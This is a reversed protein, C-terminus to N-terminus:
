FDDDDDSSVDSTETSGTNGLLEIENCVVVPKWRTDGTTKDPWQDFKLNGAVAVQSGKRLYKGAIDSTKGWAQINFWDPTERGLRKVALSFETVQSGGAFTKTQPEQGLRGILLCSNVSM